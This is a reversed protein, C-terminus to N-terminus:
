SELSLNVKVESWGECDACDPLEPFCIPAFNNKSELIQIVHSMRHNRIDSSTDMDLLCLNGTHCESEIAYGALYCTSLAGKCAGTFIPDGLVGYHWINQGTSKYGQDESKGFLGLRESFLRDGPAEFTIAPRGTALAAVAALAGGLSHGTFWVSVGPYLDM